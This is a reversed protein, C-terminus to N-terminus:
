LAHTKVANVQLGRFGAADIYAVVGPAVCRRHRLQGDSQHAHQKVSNEPPVPHDTLAALSLSHPQHLFVNGRIQGNGGHPQHAESGDTLGHRFPQPGIAALDKIECRVAPICLRLRPQVDTVQRQLLQRGPAVDDTEVQRGVAPAAM